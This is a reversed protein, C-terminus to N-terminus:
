SILHEKICKRFCCKKEIKFDINVKIPIITIKSSNKKLSNGQHNVGQFESKSKENKCHGEWIEGLVIQFVNYKM